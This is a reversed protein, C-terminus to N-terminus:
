VTPARRSAIKTGITWPHTGNPSPVQDIELVTLQRTTPVMAGKASILDSASTRSATILRRTLRTRRAQRGSRNTPRAPLPCTRREPAARNSSQRNRPLRRASGRPRRVDPDADRSWPRRVRHRNAAQCRAARVPEPPTPTSPTPRPMLQGIAAAARHDAESVWAAYFRLTTAGGSGHGLRGAVTRLDVGATLLETATYHRLAHLRAGRLGARKALRGYRQTM